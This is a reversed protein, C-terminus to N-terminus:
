LNGDYKNEELNAFKTQTLPILMWETERIKKQFWQTPLNSNQEMKNKLWLANVLPLANKM